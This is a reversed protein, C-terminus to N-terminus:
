ADDADLGRYLINFNESDLLNGNCQGIKMQCETSVYRNAIYFLMGKIIWAVSVIVGLYLLTPPIYCFKRLHSYDEKNRSSESMESLHYTGVQPDRSGVDRINIVRHHHAGLEGSRVDSGAGPQHLCDHTVCSHIKDVTKYATRCNSIMSAKCQM